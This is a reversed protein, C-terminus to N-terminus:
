EFKAQFEKTKAKVDDLSFNKMEEEKEKILEVIKRYKKIQKEDRDGFILAFFKDLNM